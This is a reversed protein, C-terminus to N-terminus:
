RRRMILRQAAVFLIVSVGVFGAWQWGSSAHFAELAAATAGGFAWPLVFLGGTVAEGLALLIAVAVWAWFVTTVDGREFTASSATWAYGNPGGAELRPRSQAFRLLRMPCTRHLRKEGLFGGKLIPM